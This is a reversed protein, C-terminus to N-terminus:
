LRREALDAVVRGIALSATAAPSPANLVHISAPGEQLAFDDVLRGDRAVAQARIGCGIWRLDAPVVAPVLRKAAQTFARRSFTRELEGVGTHWHRLALRWFGPYFFTSAADRLSIRYRGYGGRALALLANPGVEVGGHVMRTFHVGLFPFRPDPVPYILGRVLDRRGLVLEYYEGRFPIIRVQPSVGCLRAIRDSQLGACNILLRCRVTTGGGHITLQEGERRIATVRWGRRVEGGLRSVEAAYARAVQRFDTIATEPVWLGAIGAAEPEHRRVGDADLREVALGNARGRRELEDLAALEREEIAVVVKGCREYPLQHEECFSELALRGATSLRAKLSGPKYYLGSHVVGSNHGTQHTGVETEAELVTVSRRGREVLALAVALGVIGGGIIAVDRVVHAGDVVLEDLVPVAERGASSRPEPAARPGEDPGAGAPDAGGGSAPQDVAEPEAERRERGKM